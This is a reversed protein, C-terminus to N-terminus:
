QAGGSAQNREARLQRKLLKGSQNRPLRAGITNQDKPKMATTAPLASM